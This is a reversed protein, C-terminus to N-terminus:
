RLRSVVREAVEAAPLDAAPIRCEALAYTARRREHLMRQGLRDDPNWLPRPGGEALRRRLIELSVDLWLTRGIQRMLCRTAHRLFAGGGTAVIVCPGAADTVALAELQRFRAEGSDRFIGAISTGARQEILRDTDAFSWGLRGALERGVTTKGCGMFGVLFIPRRGLESM